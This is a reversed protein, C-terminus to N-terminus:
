NLMCFFFVWVLLGKGATSSNASEEVIGKIVSLPLRAKMWWHAYLGSRFVEPGREAAQLNDCSKSKPKRSQSKVSMIKEHIQNVSEWPAPIPADSCSSATNVVVNDSTSAQCSTRPTSGFPSTCRCQAEFEKAEMESFSVNRLDGISGLNPITVSERGAALEPSNLTCSGAMGSDSSRRSFCPETCCRCYPLACSEHKSGIQLYHYSVCKRLPNSKNDKPKPEKQDQSSRRKLDPKPLLPPKVPAEPAISEESAAVIGFRKEDNSRRPEIELFNMSAGPDEPPIDVNENPIDDDKNKLISGRVGTSKPCDEETEVDYLGLRKFREEYKHLIEEESVESKEWADDSAQKSKAIALNTKMSDRPLTSSISKEFPKPKDSDISHQRFGVNAFQLPLPDSDNRFLTPPKVVDGDFNYLIEAVLADPVPIPNAPIDVSSSHTTTDSGSSRSSKAINSESNSWHPIYVMTMSSKNFKNGVFKTPMSHREKPVFRNASLLEIETTEDINVLDECAMYPRTTTEFSSGSSESIQNIVALTLKEKPPEVIEPMAEHDIVSDTSEDFYRVFGFSSVTDTETESDDVANQRQLVKESEDSSSDCESDTRIVVETKHQRRKVGSTDTSKLYDSYLLTKLLRQTIVREKVLRYFSKTLTCYPSAPAYSAPPFTSDYPIPCVFNLVSLRTSYGRQDLKFFM